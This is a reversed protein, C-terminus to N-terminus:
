SSPVVSYRELQVRPLEWDPALEAATQFAQYASTIDGTLEHALGLNYHAIQPDQTKLELAKELEPIAKKPYGAGIMAAGHNLYTAGLQPRLKSAYSYDSMAREFHKMRMRIIGRNIYSAALNKRNLTQSEIAATCIREHKAVPETNVVTAEYCDKGLSSGLILVQASAAGSLVGFAAIAGIIRKKM